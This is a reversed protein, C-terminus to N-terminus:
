TSINPRASTTTSGRLRGPPMRFAPHTTVDDVLEKGIYVQSGDRLGELYDQGTKLM